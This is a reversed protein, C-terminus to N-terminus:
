CPCLSCLVSPSVHAFLIDQKPKVPGINGDIDGPQVQAHGGRGHQLLPHEGGHLQAEDAAGEGQYVGAAPEEVADQTVPQCRLKQDDGAKQHCTKGVQKQAQQRCIQQKQAKPADVGKALAHKPAGHEAGNGLEVALGLRILFHGDQDGRHGHAINQADEQPRLQHGPQPQPGGEQHGSSQSGKRAHGQLHDQGGGASIRCAAAEGQLGQKLFRGEPADEQVSNWPAM